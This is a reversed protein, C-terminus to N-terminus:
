YKNLRLLNILESKSISNAGRTWSMSLCRLQKISNLYGLLKEDANLFSSKIQGSLGTPITRIGYLNPKPGDIPDINDILLNITM